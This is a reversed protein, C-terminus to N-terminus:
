KQVPSLGKVEASPGVMSLVNIQLMVTRELHLDWFIGEAREEGSTVVLSIGLVM